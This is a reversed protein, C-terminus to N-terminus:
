QVTHSHQSVVPPKRSDNRKHDMLYLQNKYNWFTPRNINSVDQDKRLKQHERYFDSQPRAINLPSPQGFPIAFLFHFPVPMFVSRDTRNKEM